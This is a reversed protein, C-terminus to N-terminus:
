VPIYETITAAFGSLAVTIERGQPAKSMQTQVPATEHWTFCGCMAFACACAFMLQVKKM